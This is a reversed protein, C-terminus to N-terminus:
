PHIVLIGGPWGLPPRFRLVSATVKAGKREEFTEPHIWVEHMKKGKVGMLNLTVLSNEPFYAVVSGDIEDMAVSVPMANEPVTTTAVLEPAPTLVGLSHHSIFQRWRTIWHGDPLDATFTVVHVGSIWASLLVHANAEPWQLMVPKGSRYADICEDLTGNLDDDGIIAHFTLWDDARFWTHSGPRNLVSLPMEPALRLVRRGWQRCEPLAEPTYQFDIDSYDFLLSADRKKSRSVLTDLPETAISDSVIFVTQIQQAEYEDMLAAIGAGDIVGSLPFRLWVVEVGSDPLRTIFDTGEEGEPLLYGIHMTNRHWFNQVLDKGADQGLACIHSILALCCLIVVKRM